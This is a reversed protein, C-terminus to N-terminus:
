KKGCRGDAWTKHGHCEAECSNGYNVGGACVPQFIKNCFCPVITHPSIPKAESETAVPAETKVVDSSKHTTCSFLALLVLWKM